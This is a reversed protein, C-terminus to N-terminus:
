EGLADRIETLRWVPSRSAMDRSFVWEDVLESTKEPHGSLLTGNADYEAVIADATFNLAIVATTKKLNIEKIICARIAHVEMVMRKGEQERMRMLGTFQKETAADTMTDIYDFDGQAYADLILAYADKANTTFVGIDFQPDIAQLAQVKPLLADDMTTHPPLKIAAANMATNMPPAPIDLMRGQPTPMGTATPVDSKNDANDQQPPTTFPNPRQREDGHRTGLINRLWVVLVVAIIVYIILDAPLSM